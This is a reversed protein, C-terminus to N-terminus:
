LAGTSIQAGVVPPSTFRPGPLPRGQLPPPPPALLEAKGGEALALLRGASGPEAAPLFQPPMGPHGALAVSGAPKGDAANFAAIEPALGPVLLLRTSLYPGATPQYPLSSKWRQHGNGRDLARLVGDLSVFYVSEEDVSATGVIAGGTRWRWKTEGSRTDLCYLFKDAGGVFLRDDLPRISTPAAPLRREWSAVGTALDLALLRGDELPVYLTSGGAAPRASAPGGLSQRWLVDGSAARYMTAEGDAGTALLWGNDWFLPGAPGPMEAHWRVTGTAADRAELRTPLAVFVLGGGAEPSGHIGEVPVAWAVTGTGLSLASLHGSRLPVYAREADVAAPASPPAPLSVVWASTMSVRRPARQDAPSAAQLAPVPAGPLPAAAGQTSVILWALAM